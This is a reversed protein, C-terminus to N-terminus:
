GGMPPQFISLGPAAFTFLVLAAGYFVVPLLLWPAAAEARGSRYLGCAAAYGLAMAAFYLLVDVALGTGGFWRQLLYYVGLLFVPMILEAAFIGGWLRHRERVVTLASATEGYEGLQELRRRAEKGAQRSLFFGSLLMPWYLLKLHEWVSENVPALLASILNPSITYLFHLATGAAAALVASIIYARKM